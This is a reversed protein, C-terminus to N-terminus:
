NDYNILDLCHTKVQPLIEKKIKRKEWWSFNALVFKDAAMKERQNNSIGVRIRWFKDSAVYEMISKVGNHGASSGEKKIKIKGLPLDIEDHIIILNELQIKFYNKLLQVAQGSNNMYTQPKALIIQQNNVKGLSIEAKFKNQLKFKPWNFEKALFDTTMFGINHRTNTYKKEPNGLGVILFM